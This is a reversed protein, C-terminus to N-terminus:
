RLPPVPIVWDGDNASRRSTRALVACTPAETSLRDILTYIAELQQGNAAKACRIIHLRKRNFLILVVALLLVVAAVVAAIIIKVM